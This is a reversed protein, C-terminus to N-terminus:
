SHSQPLRRMSFVGPDLQLCRLWPRLNAGYIGYLCVTQWSGARPMTVWSTFRHGPANFQPCARDSAYADYMIGSYNVGQALGFQPCVAFPCVPECGAMLCGHKQYACESADRPIPSTDRCAQQDCRGSRFSPTFWAVLSDALRGRRLTGTGGLSPHVILGM